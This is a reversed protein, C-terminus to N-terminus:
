LGKRPAARSGTNEQGAGAKRSRRAFVGGGERFYAAALVTMFAVMGLWGPILSTREPENKLVSTGSQRIGLKDPENMAEGDARMVPDPVSINGSGNKMRVVTGGTDTVAPELIHATSLAERYEAPNAFGRSLVASYNKDDQQEARYIGYESAEIEARWIGNGTDEPMVTIRQGSPTTIHVPNEVDTMSQREVIIRDDGSKDLRLAEEEMDPNKILWQMSRRMLDAYPGGQEYNRAWLWANGSQLMAVRGEEQRDLILLPKGERGEMVVHGREAASDAIHYWRGWPKGEGDAGTKGDLGRTVPHRRGADTIEPHYPIMPSKQRVAAPRNETEAEKEAEEGNGRSRFGAPTASLISQLPTQYISTFKNYEEGNIVMLAGGEQTYRVINNFYSGPLLARYEYQDFIVLDFDGLKKHFLEHTPLPTLSRDRLLAYDEKDPPRMITFHVLDTDPDSKLSRRLHPMGAHPSGSVLLVNLRERIGEINTVIRNNLETLEGDLGEATIEFMNDGSHAIDLKMEATEGVRVTQEALTETGNRLKVRVTESGDTDRGDDMVRFRITRSEGVLGFRPAQEIEIRRDTEEADGSLIVHLPVNEGLRDSVNEPVDHVQGDTLFIVAGLRERPVDSLVTDLASFLRTGDGNENDGDGATVTRIKVGGLASLREHLAKYAADTDDARGDLMQSPSKDIIIAVESPLHEYQEDILEPYLLAGSLALAAGARYATGTTRHRAAYATLLLAMGALGGLLAPNVLPNGVQVSWTRTLSGSETMDATVDDAPLATQSAEHDDALVAAGYTMAAALSAAAFGSKLQRASKGMM